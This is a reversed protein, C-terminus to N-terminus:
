AHGPLSYSCNWLKQYREVELQWKLENWGLEAICLTKIKDFQDAGGEPLVNGIRTRRLLLDDLHHVQEYKVAWVLEAWLHRSYSIPTLLDKDMQKIFEVTLAGYNATIQQNIEHSSKQTTSHEFIPREFSAMQFNLEVAVEKLVEQAIVDFTTLKGGAISILGPQLWISHQRKEKSPDIKKVTNNEGEGEGNAAKERKGAVVPRVGAFTSIVDSTTLKASPFQYEVCALLYDFEAQSISPEKSLSQDHDVDTTGIVTVNQWPFIQVPRKDKPHLVSITSAVPLRWSPVIIHSGRLPRIRMSQEAALHGTWAGTANIVMKANLTIEAEASGGEAAEASQAVVGIVRQQEDKLLSNVKVYNIAQAGLQQAEQLLRLVLRADDTLADTFQTGGKLKNTEIGPVLYQYHGNSFFRHEKRGAFLDYISLLTNFIWPWPFQKKYHSMAFSQSFVLGSSEKLIRERQQVSERTLAIDGQAIYRLGGHVMKSSRSSSGWAFDKQELLLVKLGSQAARKLIGAGTIGGGIIILDWKQPENIINLRQQRNLGCFVSSGNIGAGNIDSGNIASGNIDSCNIASSNIDSGGALDSKSVNDMPLTIESM